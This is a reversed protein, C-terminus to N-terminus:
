IGGEILGSLRDKLNSRARFLLSKVAPVSAGLARAIDDYSLGGFHRLVLAARQQDPLRDVEARVDAGRERRAAEASPSPQKADPLVMKREDPGGGLSFARRRRRDRIHNLSLNTAIRFLFGAFPARPEYRQASRYLRVFTDQALDEAAHRDGVMQWIYNAVRGQYRNVLESFASEDGAQVALMLDNDDDARL